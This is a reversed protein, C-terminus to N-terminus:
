ARAPHDFKPDYISALPVAGGYYKFLNRALVQQPVQLGEEVRRLNSKDTGVAAAVTELSLGRSKRTQKLLSDGNEAPPAM